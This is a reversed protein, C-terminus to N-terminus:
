MVGDYVGDDYVDDCCIYSTIDCKGTKGDGDSDDERMRIDCGYSYSNNQIVIVKYLRGKIDNINSM